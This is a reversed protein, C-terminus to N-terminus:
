SHEQKESIVTIQPCTSVSPTWDMGGQEAPRSFTSPMRRGSYGYPPPLVWRKLCVARERKRGRGKGEIIRISCPVTGCSEAPCCYCLKYISLDFAPVSLWWIFWASKKCGRSVLSWSENDLGKQLCPVPSNACLQYGWLELMYGFLYFMWGKQQPYGVPYAM